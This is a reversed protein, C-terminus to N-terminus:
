RGRYYGALHLRQSFKALTEGKVISAFAIQTMFGENRTAFREFIIETVILDLLGCGRLFELQEYSENHRM